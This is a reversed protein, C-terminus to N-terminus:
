IAEFYRTLLVGDEEDHVWLSDNLQLLDVLVRVLFQPQSSWTGLCKHVWVVSQEGYGRSNWQVVKASGEKADLGLLILLSQISFSHMSSVSHLNGETILTPLFTISILQPGNKTGFLDFESFFFFYDIM